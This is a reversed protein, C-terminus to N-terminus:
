FDSSPALGNVGATSRFSAIESEFLARPVRYSNMEDFGPGSHIHVHNDDAWM